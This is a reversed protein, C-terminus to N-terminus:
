FLLNMEQKIYKMRLLESKEELEIKRIEDQKVKSLEDQINLSAQGVLEKKDNQLDAIKQRLSKRGPPQHTM